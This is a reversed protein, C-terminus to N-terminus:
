IHILSLVLCALEVNQNGSQRPIPPNQNYPNPINLQLSNKQALQHNIEVSNALQELISKHADFVQDGKNIITIGEQNENEFEIQCSTLNLLNFLEQTIIQLVEKVDLSDHVRKTIRRISGESNLAQKLKEAIQQRSNIEQRLEQNSATLKQRTDRLARDRICM